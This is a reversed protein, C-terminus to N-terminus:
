KKRLQNSFIEDAFRHAMTRLAGVPGAYRKGSLSEQRTGDLVQAEVAVEDQRVSATGSLLVSIGQNAAEQYIAPTLGTKAPAGQAFALTEGEVVTFLLSRRLDAAVTDRFAAGVSKPEKEAFGLIALPIKQFDPRKAELYVDSAAAGWLGVSCLLALLLLSLLIKLGKNM